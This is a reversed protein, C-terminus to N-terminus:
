VGQRIAEFEQESEKEYKAKLNEKLKEYNSRATDLTKQLEVRVTDLNARSTERAKNRATDSLERSRDVEGRIRAIEQARKERAAAAASPSLGKPIPPLRRIKTAAAESEATIDKSMKEMLASLQERIEEGRQKAANRLRESQVRNREGASALERQRAQRIQDKSYTWAQKQKDTRLQSTSQRGKLERTRLYYEHAKVPDYYKASAHELYDEIFEEVADM